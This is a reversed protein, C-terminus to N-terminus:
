RIESRNSRLNPGHHAEPAQKAFLPSSQMFPAPRSVSRRFHVRSGNAIGTKTRLRSLLPFSNRSNAVASFTLAPPINTAIRRTKGAIACSWSSIGLAGM